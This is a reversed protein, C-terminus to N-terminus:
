SMARHLKSLTSSTKVNIYITPGSRCLAFFLDTPVDTTRLPTNFALSFNVLRFGISCFLMWQFNIVLPLCLMCKTWIRFACTWVCGSVFVCTCWNVNCLTQHDMCISQLKTKNTILTSNSAKESKLTESICFTVVIFCLCLMEQTSSWQQKSIFHIAICGENNDIKYM